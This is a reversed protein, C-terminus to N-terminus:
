TKAVDARVLASVPAMAHRDRAMALSRNAVERAHMVAAPVRGARM